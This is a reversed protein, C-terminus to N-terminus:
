KRPANRAPNIRHSSPSQAASRHQRRFQASTERNIMGSPRRLAHLTHVDASRRRKERGVIREAGSASEKRASRLSKVAGMEQM